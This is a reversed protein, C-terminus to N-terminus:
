KGLRSLAPNVIPKKLFVPRLWVLSLADHDLIRLIRWFVGHRFHAHHSYNNLWVNEFRRHVCDLTAFRTREGRRLDGLLGSSGNYLIPRGM